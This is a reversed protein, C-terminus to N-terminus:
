PPSPDSPLAIAAPLSPAIHTTRPQPAPSRPPTADLTDPSGTLDPVADDLVEAPLRRRYGRSFHRTDGLNTDNPRASLQYLRSNFLTRLLHKLDYGHAVFDAALADLLEPHVCPNSLRFDDVPEVLGRGFCFAWVRNVLARALFPNNTATAWDALALRPDTEGAPLLPGDPARPAM